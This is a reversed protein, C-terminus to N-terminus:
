ALELQLVCPPSQIHGPHLLYAVIFTLTVSSAEHVSFILFTHEASM